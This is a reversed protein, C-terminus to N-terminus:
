DCSLSEGSARRWEKHTGIDRESDESVLQFGLLILLGLIRWSVSLLKGLIAEIGNLISASVSADCLDQRKLAIPSLQQADM